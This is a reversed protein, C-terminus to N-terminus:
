KIEVIHIKFERHDITAQNFKVEHSRYKLWERIKQRDRDPMKMGFTVSRLLKPDYSHLGPGRQHDIIRHEAEYKWGIFKSLFILDFQKSSPTNFFDVAPFEETYIVKQSDGFVRTSRTAEFELCYGEHNRAYHSWMVINDNEKALCYLGIKEAVRATVDARLNQWTESNCHQGSLFMSRAQVTADNLTMSSNKQLNGALAEVIEIETGNFTFWPRCEFPDNLSSPSSFWVTSTSFLSESHKNIFGYKFLVDTYM